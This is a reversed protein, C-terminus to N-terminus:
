RISGRKRNMLDCVRVILAAITRHFKASIAGTSLRRLDRCIQALIMGPGILLKRRADSVEFSFDSLAQTPKTDQVLGCSEYSVELINGAM